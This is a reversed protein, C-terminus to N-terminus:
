IGDAGPGRRVSGTSTPIPGTRGSELDETAELMEELSNVSFQSNM